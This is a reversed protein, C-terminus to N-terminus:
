NGLAHLASKKGKNVWQSRADLDLDDFHAYIGDILRGDHWNQQLAFINDSLNCTLFNDFQIFTLTMLSAITM